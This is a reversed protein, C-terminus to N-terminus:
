HWCTLVVAFGRVLPVEIHASRSWLSGSNLWFDLLHVYAFMRLLFDLPKVSSSTKKTTDVVLTSIVQLFHKGLPKSQNPKKDHVQAM